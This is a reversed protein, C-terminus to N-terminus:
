GGGASNQALTYFFLTAAKSADAYPQLRQPLPRRLEKPIVTDRLMRNARDAAASHETNHVELRGGRTAFDYYEREQGVKDLHASPLHWNSYLGYKGKETILGLVHWPAGLFNYQPVVVEDNAHVVYKRGPAQASKLMPLMNHRTGYLEQLEGKMWSMSGGNGIAVLMPLFDVHATLGTRVTDVDGTYRGSPDMVILPVRIAEDYITGTKGSVMGHASSFDGHDSVFIVITNKAVAEPMANVVEGVREDLVEMIQTYSDLARRWYEFPGEGIGYKSPTAGPPTPYRSISHGTQTPNDTVGGFIMAQFQRVVQHYSPKNRGLQEYSEWNDPLRDYGYNPPDKLANEAWSIYTAAPQTSFNKFQELGQPNTVPDSFLTNFTQYETGAPFFEKDHPNVFGVTCCWPQDNPKTAKLWTAAASAIDGDSYFIPGEGYTGQMNGGTPDPSMTGDFGYASYYGASPDNPNAHPVSVHWKGIYPTQYGAQRLLKGYTPYARNLVPSESHQESPTGTLTATLWTQQSYLGTLLVGRSPSCDNANSHHQGFKVGKRWLQYTNPMFKQLFEGASKVGKPFVKPFRMEDVLIILINPKQTSAPADGSSRTASSSSALPVVTAAAGVAAAGAMVARRSVKTGATTEESKPSDNVRIEKPTM